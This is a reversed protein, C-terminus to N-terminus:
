PRLGDLRSRAESVYRSEPYSTLVRRYLEVAEAGRGLEDLCYAEWFIVHPAIPDEPTMDRDLAQLLQLAGANNGSLVMGYAEQFRVRAAEQAAREARSPGGIACATMGLSLLGAIACCAVSRRATHPHLPNSM